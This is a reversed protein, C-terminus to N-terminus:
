NSILDAGLLAYLPLLLRSEFSSTATKRRIIPFVPVCHRTDAKKLRHLSHESVRLLTVCLTM